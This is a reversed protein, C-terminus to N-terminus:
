HRVIPVATQTSLEPQTHMCPGPAPSSPLSCSAKLGCQGCTQGQRWSLQQGPCSPSHPCLRLSALVSGIRNDPPWHPICNFFRHGQPYHKSIATVWGKGGRRVDAKEGEKDEEVGPGRERGGGESDSDQAQRTGQEQIHSGSHPLLYAGGKEQCPQSSVLWSCSCVTLPSGPKTIGEIQM